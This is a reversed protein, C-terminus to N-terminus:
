VIGHRSPFPAVPSGSIGRGRLGGGRPSADCYFVRDRSAERNGESGLRCRRGAIGSGVSFPVYLNLLDSDLLGGTNASTPKVQSHLTRPICLFPAPLHIQGIGASSCAAWPTRCATARSQRLVPMFTGGNGSTRPTDTPAISPAFNRRAALGNDFFLKLPFM